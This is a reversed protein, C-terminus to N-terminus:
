KPTQGTKRLHDEWVAEEVYRGVNGSVDTKGEIDTGIGTLADLRRYGERILDKESRTVYAQVAERVVAGISKGEKQARKKLVLYDANPFHDQTRHETIM